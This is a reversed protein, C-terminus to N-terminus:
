FATCEGMVRLAKTRELLLPRLYGVTDSMPLVSEDLAIGLVDIMYRRRRQMRAWMQPYNAEIEGRLSADAIVVGDEASVGGYPALRPIIDMQLVMGSRLAIASDREIPSSLWEEMATLHGPNLQWGYQAKPLVADVAAYVEGGTVGPSLMSYWTASAAFYPKAVADVYDRVDKALEDASTAVYGARCTLGGRLGMSVTFRDGLVVRKDRPFVVANTFREGTACMSYCSLPQAYAALHDALECETKGVEVEELVRWVRNSALSAAFEYQAIEEACCTARLGTDPNMMIATANVLHARGVLKELADVIFHPVDFMRGGDMLRGTFVKWGILGVKMGSDLGAMRLSDEMTMEGEMPQNPLSFFPVHVYKVPIRSYQHMKLCENGLMVCARGDVHVILCAEEFRPEFGTMYGFNGGHERDAYILVADFGEAQMAACLKDLRRAYVADSLPEPMCPIEVTPPTLFAYEIRDPYILM